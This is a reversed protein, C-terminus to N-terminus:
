LCRSLIFETLGKREKNANTKIQAKVDETVRLQISATKPNDSKANQNGKMWPTDRKKKNMKNKHPTM